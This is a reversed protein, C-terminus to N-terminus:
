GATVQKEVKLPATLEPVGAMADAIGLQDEDTYDVLTLKADTHRMVRMAVALPVGNRHMRTALTKRTGAHFDAARDMSDLYPIGAATLDKQWLVLSPVNGFVKEGDVAKAPKSKRLEEALGPPLPVRDDRGAKTTEARLQIYPNTAGLRLDGWALQELEARRLGTSVAFRYVAARDAPAAGLLKVVDEDSLARRKRRAEGNVSEVSALAIAITRGDAQVGPMRKMSAAWNTFARVTDLYQNITRASATKKKATTKRFGMARPNARAHDRWTSFSDTTIDKLSEWGTEEIVRKIRQKAIYIYQADRGAGELHKIYDHLHQSITSADHGKFPNVMVQEGRALDLEIKAMMQKSAAKDKYAKARKIKGTADRYQITWHEVQRSEVTGDPLTAKYSRKVLSAM